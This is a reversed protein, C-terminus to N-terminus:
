KTVQIGSIYSRLQEFLERKTTLGFITMSGGGKVIQHLAHGGYAEYLHYNNPQSGEKNYPETPYGMLENLDLIANEIDAKKIRAM